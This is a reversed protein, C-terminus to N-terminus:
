SLVIAIITIFDFLVLMFIPIMCTDGYEEDLGMFIDKMRLIWNKELTNIEEILKQKRRKLLFQDTQYKNYCDSLEYKLREVTKKLEDINSECDSYSEVIAIDVLTMKSKDYIKWEHTDLFRHGCIGCYHSGEPSIGNCFKCNKSM